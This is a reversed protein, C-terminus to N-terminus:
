LLSHHRAISTRRKSAVLVIPNRSSAFPLNDSSEVQLLCYNEGCDITSHTRLASRQRPTQRSIVLSEFSQEVVNYTSSLVAEPWVASARLQAAAKDRQLVLPHLREIVVSSLAVGTASSGM